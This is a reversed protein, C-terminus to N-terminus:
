RAAGALPKARNALDTAVLYYLKAASTLKRWNIKDVTDTPRHLDPHFGDFLFAVPINHTGFSKQDSNEYLGEMDFLLRFHVYRNLREVVSRM